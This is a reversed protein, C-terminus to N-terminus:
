KSMKRCLNRIESCRLGNRYIKMARYQIFEPVVYFADALEDMTYRRYVGELFRAAPVLLDVAYDNAIREARCIHYGVTPSNAAVTYGVTTFHHGLEHAIVCREQREDRALLESLGIYPGCMDGLHIYVGLWDVPLAKYEIAINERDALQYLYETSTMGVRMAIM